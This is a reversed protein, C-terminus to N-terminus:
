QISTRRMNMSGPASSSGAASAAAGSMFATARERGMHCGADPPAANDGM